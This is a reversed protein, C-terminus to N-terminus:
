AAARLSTRQSSTPSSMSSNAATRSQIRYPPASCPGSGYMGAFGAAMTEAALLDHELSVLRGAVAQQALVRLARRRLTGFGTLRGIGLEDAGLVRANNM